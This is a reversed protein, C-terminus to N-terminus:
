HGVSAAGKEGVLDYAEFRSLRFLAILNPTQGTASAEALMKGTLPAFQWIGGAMLRTVGWPTDAHRHIYTSPNLSM